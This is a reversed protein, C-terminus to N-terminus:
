CRSQFFIVKLNIGEFNSINYQIELIARIVELDYAVIKVNNENLFYHAFLNFFQCGYKHDSEQLDDAISILDFFYTAKNENSYLCVSTIKARSSLEDPSFVSLGIQKLLNALGTQVIQKFYKGAIAM